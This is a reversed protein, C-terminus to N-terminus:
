SVISISFPWLQNVEAPHEAISTRCLIHYLM